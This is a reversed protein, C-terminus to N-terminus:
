EAAAKAPAAADPLLSIVTTENLDEGYWARIAAERKGLYRPEDNELVMPLDHGPMLINGPRRSWFSWIADISARTVAADYTMDAARSLLEARNKCADGTFVIDREGGDLVFVLSGPTHGAAMHATIGPFVEAGDEVTCLTPWTKLERVYLEPVVTVGWPQELSWDLETQGIVIRADPFMTWNISHDYHSHTLLVDTVDSLALGREAFHEMLLGRQGFSGVDVLALRDGHRILAITSFGLSGHCVSKGPFGHVIIDIEYDGISFKKGDKSVSM